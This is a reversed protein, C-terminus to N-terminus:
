ILWQIMDGEWSLGCHDCIAHYVFQPVGNESLELLTQATLGAPLIDAAIDIWIDIVMEPIPDVPPLSLPRQPYDPPEPIKALPVNWDRVCGSYDVLFMLLRTPHQTRYVNRQAEVMLPRWFDDIWAPLFGPPMYDVTHFVFIADQTELARCVRQTIQEHTAHHSLDLGLAVQRWLCGVDKGIAPSSLDVVVRQGTRWGPSLRVLRTVLVQQGYGNDGQVLFASVPHARIVGQAMRVQQRFNLRLLMDFLKPAQHPSPKSRVEGRTMTAQVDLHLAHLEGHLGDGPEYRDRLTAVFIPLVAAGNSLRQDILYDLCLDILEATTDAIPLGIRFPFLSETSFLTRLNLNNQFQWCRAFTTRCRQYLDETLGPM